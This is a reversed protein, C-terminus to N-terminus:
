QNRFGEAISYKKNNFKIVIQELAIKHFLIGTIGLLSIVILATEASFILKLIGFIFLPVIGIPLGMMFQTWTTGQWNFKASGKLDIRKDNYNSFYLIWLVNVGVNYLCMALNVAVARWGFYFYPLTLMFYIVCSSSLLLYKSKFFDFTKINSTLLLDFYSSQWSNMFQGYNMLSIGTIFLGVFVYSLQFNEAYGKYFVLGYFVVLASRMVLSKPRKNRWILKVELAILEGIVGLKNLLPLDISSKNEKKITILEDLYLNRLIYQHNIFFMVAFLTIPILVFLPQILPKYFISISLTTLEFIHYYDLAALAIIVLFFGFYILYNTSSKRKLYVVLYNLFLVLFILSILWAFGHLAPENLVHFFAFPIFIIIPFLNQVNFASGLSFFNALVNRKINLHLYSQINLTPLPQFLLRICANFLFFYLLFSDFSTLVAREPFMKELVDGIYIGTATFVALMYLMIFAMFIQVLVTKGFNSSRVFAKCQNILLKILM